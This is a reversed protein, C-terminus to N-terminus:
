VCSVTIIFCILTCTCVDMIKGPNVRAKYILQSAPFLFDLVLTQSFTCPLSYATFSLLYFCHLGFYARCMDLALIVQILKPGDSCSGLMYREEVTHFSLLEVILSLHGDLVAGEIHCHHTAITEDQFYLAFVKKLHHLCPPM